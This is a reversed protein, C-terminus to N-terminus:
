IVRRYYDEFPFFYRGNPRVITLREIARTVTVFAVRLEAEHGGHRRDNFTAYPMRNWDSLVVVHEAERGKAGHMTTLKISKEGKPRPKGGRKELYFPVGASELALAVKALQNRTRALIMTDVRHDVVSALDRHNIVDVAGEADRAAYPKEVRKKDDAIIAQALRHIAQPVRHSQELVHLKHTRAMRRLWESDGGQFGFIAQDDDGAIAFYRCSSAWMEVVDVQLPSLDQAEDVILADVKLKLEDELVLELMDGFGVLGNKLKFAALRRSFTM